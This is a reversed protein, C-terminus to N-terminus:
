GLRRSDMSIKEKIEEQYTKIAKRLDECGVRHFLVLLKKLEFLATDNKTIDGSFPAIKIGNEQNLKFNFPEDDVIIVRKIERGLKSIDKVFSNCYLTSHERYLNYDFYKKQSEIIGLIIDSYEKPATTFSVLEYLPKITNLFSFIGPRLNSMIKNDVFQINILTKDLDLVLTYKKDTPNTLFPPSIKNKQYELLINNNIINIDSMINVNPIINANQLNYNYNNITIPINNNNFNIYNNYYTGPNGNRMTHPHYENKPHPTFGGGRSRYIYNYFYNNIDKENIQSILNFLELFDLYYINGTREYYNLIIKLNDAINICNKNLTQVIQTENYDQYENRKLLYNFTKFYMENQEVFQDGYFLQLKKIFLYLNLKLYSYINQLYSLIQTLLNSNNSLHYTMVITYLKLNISSQVFLRNKEHFIFPFKYILSSHFYFVFFEVCENPAGIEIINNNNNLAIFIDNLREEILILDELKIQLSNITHDNFQNNNNVLNNSNIKGAFSNRLNFNSRTCNLNNKNMDINKIPSMVVKRYKNGQNNGIKVPSGIISRKNLINKNVPFGNKINIGFNIRKNYKSEDFSNSIDINNYSATTKPSNLLEKNKNLTAININDNHDTNQNLYFTKRFSDERSRVSYHPSGIINNTKPKNYPFNNSLLDRIKHENKAVSNKQERSFDKSEMKKHKKEIEININLNKTLSADSNKNTPKPSVSILKSNKNMYSTTSIEKNPSKLTKKLLDIDQQSNNIFNLDELKKASNFLIKQNTPKICDRKPSPILKKYPSNSQINKNITEEEKKAINTKMPKAKIPIYNDSSIKKSAIINSNNLNIQPNNRIKNINKLTDLLNFNSRIDKTVRM